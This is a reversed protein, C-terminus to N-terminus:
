FWQLLKSMLGSLLIPFWAVAAAVAFIAAPVISEEITIARGLKDTEPLLLLPRARRLLAVSAAVMAGIVIVGIYAEERQLLSLLRLRVLFGNTLPFGTLSLAGYAFLLMAMPARRALGRNAEFQNEGIPVTVASKGLLHLGVIAVALSISRVVISQLTIGLGASDVMSFAVVSTGLDVILLYGLLRRFSRSSLALLAGVMITAVGSARALALLQTGQGIATHEVMYGNIFVVAALQFLGFMVILVLEGAENAIPTVWIHFPFAALLILFGLLVMGANVPSAALRQENLLWDAILLLPVTLAVMKLVRMSALTSGARSGQILVALIAAALLLMVIGFALPKVLLAASIPSLLLMTFPIFNQEQPILFSMGYLAAVFVYLAQITARIGFTLTLSRGFFLQTSSSIISRGPGLSLENLETAGLTLFMASVTVLGLGAAIRPWRKVLYLGLGVAIPALVALTPGPLQNM